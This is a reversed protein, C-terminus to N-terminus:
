CGFDLANEVIVILHAKHRGVACGVRGVGQRALRFRLFGHIRFRGSRRRRDLCVGVDSEIANPVQRSTVRNRRQNLNERFSFTAVCDGKPGLFRFQVKRYLYGGVDVLALIASIDQKDLFHYFEPGLSFGSWQRRVQRNDCCVESALVVKEDHLVTIGFVISCLYKDFDNDVRLIM